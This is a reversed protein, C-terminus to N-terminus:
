LPNQIHFIKDEMEQVKQELFKIRNLLKESHTGYEAFDKELQKRREAEWKKEQELRFIKLEKKYKEFGETEEIDWCADDMWNEKLLRLREGDVLDILKFRTDESILGQYSEVDIDELYTYGKQIFSALVMAVVREENWLKKKVTEIRTRM